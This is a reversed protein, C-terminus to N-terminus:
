DVLTALGILAKIISVTMLTPRSDSLLLRPKSRSAARATAETPKHRMICWDFLVILNLLPTYRVRAHNPAQITFSRM